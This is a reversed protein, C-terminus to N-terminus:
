YSIRKRDFFPIFHNKGPAKRLTFREPGGSPKYWELFEYGTTGWRKLIVFGTPRDKGKIYYAAWQYAADESQEDTGGWWMEYAPTGDANVWFTVVHYSPDESFGYNM